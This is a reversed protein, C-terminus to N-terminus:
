SVEIRTMRDLEEPGMTLDIRNLLAQQSPDLTVGWENVVRARASLLASRFHFDTNWLDLLRALNEPIDPPNGM